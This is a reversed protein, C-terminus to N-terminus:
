KTLEEILADLEDHTNFIHLSARLMPPLDRALTDLMASGPPVVSVNIHKMRLESRLAALDRDRLSFTVIGSRRSGLDHVEADPVEAELRDRLADALETIRREIADLGWAMAEDIANGLGLLGAYNKEWTEFRGADPKLEYTTPTLWTASDHDIMAPHITELLSQRVYIFGTGRPGRLFKRGTSTLADCGIAEVDLAMQGASQCADLLYPIGHANAVRGIEAAPNVLGGNTPIHNVTILKVREDVMEELARVDFEGADNNPVVEVTAGTRQAIHLYAVYNAGYESQTTLIRDGAQWPLSYVFLDLVATNSTSLAIESSNANLMTAISTKIGDIRDSAADHAEYGGIRAELELHEIQTRLTGASPLASGANNFHITEACGPTEARARAVDISPLNVPKPV